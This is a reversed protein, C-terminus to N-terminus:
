LEFTIKLRYNRGMMPYSKVVQYQVDLLNQIKAQMVLNGYRTYFRKTISIGHDAYGKVCSQPVNQSQSYRKGVWVLNYGISVWSDSVTVGVGGSHRPTYPIQHGYCKSDKSTHDVAHQYSYNANLDLEWENNLRLSSEIKADVGLIDVLGLNVMSWLFMNHTPIAVLKDSIRNYYADMTASAFALWGEDMGTMYTVGLNHQMANEPRLDKPKDFYYLENFNPVRYSNKFFYRFRWKQNLTAICSAYPSLKHYSANEDNIITNTLNANLQVWQWKYSGAIATQNTWRHMSSDHSMNSRLTNISEDSAISLQLDEMPKWLLTASGYGEQQHYEDHHINGAYMSATDEYMDNSRQYKGLLQLQWQNGLIRQYRTQGFFLDEKTRESGKYAYYIVPGPLAHFSNVYHIKSCWQQVEDAYNVNGDLTLMWMNSNERYETSSSDNGSNTYYLRFPYNGEWQTYNTWLNSSWRKNWRHQWLLTPAVYGWSGCEYGVKLANHDVMATVMNITSGVALSRASQLLSETQGNSFSVFACNGVLYRGLDVQGNQADNVVIGDISLSCFQSGLGRASVTKVGGVGGYDKLTLGAMERVVDAVQNLGEREIKEITVVQTPSSSKIESPIPEAQITVTQLTKRQVTDQGLTLFPLWLMACWLIATIIKKM